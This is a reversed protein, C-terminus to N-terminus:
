TLYRVLESQCDVVPEGVAVDSIKLVSNGLFTSSSQGTPEWLGSLDPKGGTTRPVPASLNPQGDPLRPIGPTPYNLWQAGLPAAALTWLVFLAAKTM